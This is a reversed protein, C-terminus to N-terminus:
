PTRPTALGLRPVLRVALSRIQGGWADREVRTFILWWALTPYVLATAAMAFGLGFWGGPPNARAVWWVALAYPVGLVLSPVISRTLLGPAIGFETRMLRPVRWATYGLYGTTTGLLPGIMGFERTAVLSVVFNIITAHVASPVLRPTRGTGSFIWAWLSLLPLLFANIAALITVGDGAYSEPDIWLSVFARNYAAIPVLVTLGAVALLTNLEGLRRAFVEQRGSHYLEALGAWTSSGVAQLQSQATMALRQTLNFLAVAKADLFFAIVLSDTFLSVRGCVNIALSARNLTWLSRRLEPEGPETWVQGLLGPYRRLGDRVLVLPVVLSGILVALALGSIGGGGRAFVLSLGTVLLCQGIIVVNVQYGRQDSEMLARFPQFPFALCGLVSLAFGVQLDGDDRPVMTILRPAALTLGVGAALMLGCVVAAARIGAVMTARVARTDGRNLAQALLAMTGGVIGLELLSLYGGLATAAQFAGFRGKGLWAIIRPTAVMGTAFTIATFLATTAYNWTARRTRSM